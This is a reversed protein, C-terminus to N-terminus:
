CKLAAKAKRREILADVDEARFLRRGASDRIEPLEGSRALKQVASTTLKLRHGAGLPPLPFKPRTALAQVEPPQDEARRGPNPVRPETRRDPGVRQEPDIPM